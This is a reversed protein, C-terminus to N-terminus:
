IILCLKDEYEGSESNKDYEENDSTETYENELIEDYEGNESNEDYEENDSIEDYENELIEDYEGNESDKRSKDTKIINFKDLSILPLLNICRSFLKEINIAKKKEM